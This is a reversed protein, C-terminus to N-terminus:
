QILRFENIRRIQPSGGNRILKRLVTRKEAEISNKSMKYLSASINGININTRDAVDRVSMWGGNEKLIEEVEVKGM